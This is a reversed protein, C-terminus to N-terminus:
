IKGRVIGGLAPREDSALTPSRQQGKVIEDVPAFPNSFRAGIPQADTVLAGLAITAHDALAVLNELDCM